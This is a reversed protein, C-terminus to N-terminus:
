AAKSKASLSELLEGAARLRDAPEPLDLSIRLKDQGDLKYIRPKQQILRIITGPDVDPKEHFLIRGGTAGLDLKRIGLV